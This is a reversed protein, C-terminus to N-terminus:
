RKRWLLPVVKRFITWFINKSLRLLRNKTGLKRRESVIEQCLKEPDVDNGDEFAQSDNMFEAAERALDTMERFTCFVNLVRLHFIVLYTELCDFLLNICSFQDFFAFNM